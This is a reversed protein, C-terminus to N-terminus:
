ARSQSFLLAGSSPIRVTAEYNGAVGVDSDATAGFPSRLDAQPFEVLGRAFTPPPDGGADDADEFEAVIGSGDYALYLNREAALTPTPSGVFLEFVSETARFYLRDNILTDGILALRTVPYAEADRYHWENGIWLPIYRHWDLTDPLTQASAEAPILVALFLISLTPRM